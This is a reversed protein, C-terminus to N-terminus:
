QKGHVPSSTLRLIAWAAGIRSDADASELLSEFRDAEKPSWLYMLTLCVEYRGTSSGSSLLSGLQSVFVQRRSADDSLLANAGVLFPFAVSDTPEMRVAQELALRAASGGLRDRKLIYAARLRAIPEESGLAAEIKSQAAPVGNIQLVWWAFVGTASPSHDAMDQMVRLDPASLKVRLKGLTEVAQLRDAAQSDVAVARVRAIWAAREQADASALALVRWIGIRANAASAGEASPAFAPRVPEGFGTDLLAEAAHIRVFGTEKQLALSLAHLAKARLADIDTASMDPLAISLLLTLTLWGSFRVPHRFSIRQALGSLGLM